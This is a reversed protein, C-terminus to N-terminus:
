VGEPRNGGWGTIHQIPRSAVEADLQELAADQQEGSRGKQQENYRLHRLRTAEAALRDQTWGQYRNPM